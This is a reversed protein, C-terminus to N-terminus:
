GAGCGWFFWGIGQGPIKREGSVQKVSSIIKGSPTSVIAYGRKLVSYPNLSSLNAVLGELKVRLLGANYTISRLLYENMEDLRQRDNEIRRHPSGRELGNQINGLQRDLDM